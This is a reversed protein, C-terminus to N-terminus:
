GLAGVRLRNAYLLKRSSIAAKRQKVLARTLDTRSIIDLDVLIEGLMRDDGMMQRNHAIRIDVKTCLGEKLLVHGLLM